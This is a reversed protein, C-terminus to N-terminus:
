FFLRRTVVGEALDHGRWLTFHDGIGFYDAPHDAALQIQVVAHDSGCIESGEGNGAVLASFFRTGHTEHHEGRVVMRQLQGPPLEVAPSHDRTDLRGSDASRFTLLAQFKYGRSTM